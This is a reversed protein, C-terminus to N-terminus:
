SEYVFGFESENIHEGKEYEEQIDAFLYTHNVEDTFIYEYEVVLMGDENIYENTPVESLVGKSIPNVDWTVDVLKWNGNVFAHNWGHPEDIGIGTIYLVDLDALDAVYKYAYAFGACVCNKQIIAGYVSRLNPVSMTDDYEAGEIIWDHIQTLKEEDTGTLTEVFSKAEIEVLALAERTEEPTLFDAYRGEKEPVTIYLEISEIHSYEGNVYASTYGVSYEVKNVWMTALPNDYLYAFFAREVCDQYSFVIGNEGSYSYCLVDQNEIFLEQSAMLNDYIEQEVDSLQDYYFTRSDVDPTASVEVQEYVQTPETTEDVQEDVHVVDEGIVSYTEATEYNIPMEENKGCGTLFALCALVCALMSKVLANKKM